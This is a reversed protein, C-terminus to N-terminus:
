DDKKKDTYFFWRGSESGGTQLGELQGVDRVIKKIAEAYKEIYEPLFKKFWPLSFLEIKETVKLAGDLERVDRQSFAIRSPKGLRMLDFDRFYPHSHLPLNAGPHVAVGEARLAQCFLSLPLGGLEASLYRAHSAYFGANNSGEKENARVTRIGPVGEILDLFYNMAKRIEACREDYYKLQVRAQAASMQNVRGKMGGLPMHYYKKLYETERIYNQNNREYHSYAMAREYCERDDTVLIGMEGAAFSKGSMLSMAAIDGFTGLKQGKYYGGQAHSVDEIVKINHKRAIEMIRDIKAPSSLYHVVMIVKTNPGICRELDEPDLCLTEEEIDAFVVSAGFNVAQICSAWYTKSPCIIEDGAGLGSAFMAAQLSLTGNCYAVAYKRQQWQAFEREFQETIDTGSMTNKRLVDLVAEEDESTIIPWHFLEKPPCFDIAKPGGKLALQEM